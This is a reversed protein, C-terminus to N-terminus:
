GQCMVNTMIMNEKVAVGGMNNLQFVEWMKPPVHGAAVLSFVPSSLM